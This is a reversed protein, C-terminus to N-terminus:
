FRHVQTKGFLKEAEVQAQKVRAYEVRVRDLDEPTDVSYKFHSQNLFGIVHGLKFHEPTQRSRLLTTVHERDKSGALAHTDAWLLARKSMVEVDYGDVATRCKEDVNSCYDYDNAITTKILKTILYHPILPCDGTVRVIYDPHVKDSLLKYRALVDDEPGEIVMCRTGFAQKIEDGFPCLIAYNVMIKSQHTHRNMYFAAKDCSDIVHRLLPKGDILEFVKRPFRKSGSRAQIGVWVQRIQSM